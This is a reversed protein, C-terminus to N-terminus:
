SEMAFEYMYPVWQFYTNLVHVHCRVLDGNGHLQVPQDPQPYQPDEMPDDDEEIDPLGQQKAINHLVACQSSEARETKPYGSKAM